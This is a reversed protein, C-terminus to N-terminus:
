QAEQKARVAQSLFEYAEGFDVCDNSVSYEAARLIAANLHASKSILKGSALAEIIITRPSIHNVGALEINAMEAVDLLLSISKSLQARLEDIREQQRTGHIHLDSITNNLQSNEVKLRAITSLKSM